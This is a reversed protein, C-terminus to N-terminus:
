MCRMCVSEVCSSVRFIEGAQEDQEDEEVTGFGSEGQEEQVSYMVLSLRTTDGSQNEQGQTAADVNM